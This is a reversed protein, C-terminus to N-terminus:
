LECLCRRLNIKAQFRVVWYTTIYVVMCFFTSHLQLVLRKPPPPPPSHNCTTASVWGRLLGDKISNINNSEEKSQGAWLSHVQHRKKSGIFVLLRLYIRRSRSLGSASRFTSQTNPLGVFFIKFLILAVVQSAMNICKTMQDIGPLKFAINEWLRGGWVGKGTNRHM